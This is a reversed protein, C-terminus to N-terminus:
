ELGKPLLRSIVVLLVIVVLGLVGWFMLGKAGALPEGETWRAGKLQEAGGLGAVRKDARMLSDAVLALDYRPASVERNGYYLYLGDADSVKFILRTAPYTFEFGGLELAPNDGNDTELFLRDSEPSGALALSFREETREPTRTWHAQGLSRVYRAGHGDQAEEYLEVQREFLATRTTIRLEELPLSRQPLQISWRSVRPRKPDPVPAVVPEVIRRLSTREVLYPLQEGDRM